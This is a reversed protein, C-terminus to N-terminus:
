AGCGHTAYVFVFRWAKLYPLLGACRNGYRFARRLIIVAFNGRTAPAVGGKGSAVCIMRSSGCEVGVANGCLVRRPRLGCVEALGMDAAFLEARLRQHPSVCSAVGDRPLSVLKSVFITERGLSMVGYIQLHGV